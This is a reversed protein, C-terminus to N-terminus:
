RRGRFTPHNQKHLEVARTGLETIPRRPRSCPECSPSSWLLDLPERYGTGEGGDVVRGNWDRAYQDIGNKIRNKTKDNAMNKVLAVVTGVAGPVCTRTDAVTAAMLTVSQECM